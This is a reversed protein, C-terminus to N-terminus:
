SDKMFPHPIHHMLLCTLDKSKLKLTKKRSYNDMNDLFFRWAIKIPDEGKIIHKARLPPNTSRNMDSYVQVIIHLHELVPVALFYNSIPKSQTVELLHGADLTDLSEQLDDKSPSIRYIHIHSQDVNQLQSETQKMLDKLLGMSANSRILIDFQDEGTSGQLWCHIVLTPADIFNLQYM